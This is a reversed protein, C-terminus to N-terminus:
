KQVSKSYGEYILYSAKLSEIQSENKKYHIFLFFLNPQADTILNNLKLIRWKCFAEQDGDLPCNRSVSTNSLTSFQVIIDLVFNTITL